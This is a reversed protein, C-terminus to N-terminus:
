NYHEAIDEWLKTLIYKGYTPLSSNAPAHRIWQCLGLVDEGYYAVVTLRFV